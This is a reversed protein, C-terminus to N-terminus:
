PRVEERLRRGVKGDEGPHDLLWAAHREQRALAEAKKQARLHRMAGKGQPGSFRSM